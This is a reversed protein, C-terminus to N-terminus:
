YIASHGDKSCDVPVLKSAARIENEMIVFDLPRVKRNKTQKNTEKGQKKEIKLDGPMTMLILLLQIMFFHSLTAQKTQYCSPAELRWSNAKGQTLQFCTLKFTFYFSVSFSGALQELHKKRKTM